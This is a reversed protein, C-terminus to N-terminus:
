RAGVGHYRLVDEGEEVLEARVTRDIRTFPEILVEGGAMRWTAVARGGVVAFPRFIGNVTVITRSEGLLEARSRWGLLLPDFDRGARTRARFRWCGGQLRL